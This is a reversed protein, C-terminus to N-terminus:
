CTLIKGPGSAQADKLRKRKLYAQLEPDDRNEPKEAFEQLKGDLAAIFLEYRKENNNTVPQRAGVDMLRLLNHLDRDTPPTLQAQLSTVHEHARMTLASQIQALKQKREEPTMEVQPSVAQGVGREGGLIAASLLRRERLEAPDDPNKVPALVFSSIWASHDLYAVVDFFILSFVLINVQSTALKEAIERFPVGALLLARILSGAGTEANHAHCDFAWRFPEPNLCTGCRRLLYLQRVYCDTEDRLVELPPLTISRQTLYDEVTLHRWEPRYHFGQALTRPITWRRQAERRM